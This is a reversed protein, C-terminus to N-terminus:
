SSSSPFMSNGEVDRDVITRFSIRGRLFVAGQLPAVGHLLHASNRSNPKSLVRQESDPRGYVGSGLTGLSWGTIESSSSMFFFSKNSGRASSSSMSQFVFGNSISEISSCPSVGSCNIDIIVKSPDGCSCVRSFAKTRSNMSTKAVFTRRAGAATSGMFITTSLSLHRRGHLRAGGRLCESSFCFSIRFCTSASIFNPTM